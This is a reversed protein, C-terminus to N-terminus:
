IWEITIGVITHADDYTISIYYGDTTCHTSIKPADVGTYLFPYNGQPDVARVSTLNDGIRLTLFTELESEMTFIHGSLLTGDNVFPIVVVKQNGLYAVRGTPNASQRVCEVPFAEDLKDYTGLFSAISELEADTYVKTSLDWITQSSPSFSIDMETPEKTCGALSLLLTFFLLVSIVIKAKNM